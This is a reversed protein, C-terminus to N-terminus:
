CNTPVTLVLQTGTINQNIYSVVQNIQSNLICYKSDLNEYLDLAQEANTFATNAKTEAAEVRAKLNCICSAIKNLADSLHLVSPTNCAVSPTVCCGLCVEVFPDIVPINNYVTSTQGQVLLNLDDVITNYECDLQTIDELLKHLTKQDSTKNKWSGSCVFQIDSVNILEKLDCIGEFLIEQVNSLVDGKCISFSTDNECIKTPGQYFVCNTSVPPNCRSYTTSSNDCGPCNSM